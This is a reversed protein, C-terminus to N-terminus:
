SRIAPIVQEKSLIEVESTVTMYQKLSKYIKTNTEV